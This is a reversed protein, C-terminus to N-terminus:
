SFSVSCSQLLHEIGCVSRHGSIKKILQLITAKSPVEMDYYANDFAASSILAFCQELIFM